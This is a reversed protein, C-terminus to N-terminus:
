LGIFVAFLLFLMSIGLLLLQFLGTKKIWDIFSINAVGLGIMLTGCTPFLVNTYGDGLIYALIIINTSIGNFNGLTLLPILLGAKATASPIFFEIVLVLLLIFIVGVYPSLNNIFNSIYYYLTHLINAQEAIYKISFATVIVFISPALAKLGKLFSIFFSYIPKDKTSYEIVTVEKDQNKIKREKIQPFKKNFLIGIIVTGIVFAVGMIILGLGLKQLFPVASFVVVVLLVFSFLGIVWKTKYKDEDSIENFESNELNAEKAMKNVKEDKKAEHVLYLSTVVYIIIFMIARYWAGDLSSVGALDSCIGVTYPNLIACTFGSSTGLLVFELATFNTWNMASAFSMFIPYMILLEDQMGFFSCLLMLFATIAWIAGFRHKKFKLILFKIFSNLAGSDELVKFCGGLILILAIIQYMKMKTSDLFLTEIPATLWRYWPIRTPTELFEFTGAIIKGTEEDYQYQGPKLIYTLIGVFILVCYLLGVVKIISKFDIKIEKKEKVKEM